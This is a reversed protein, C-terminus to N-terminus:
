TERDGLTATKGVSAKTKLFAVGPALSPM